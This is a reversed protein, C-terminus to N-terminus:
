VNVKLEFDCPSKVHVKAVAALSMTSSQESTGEMLTESEVNYEYSYTTGVEYKWKNDPNQEASCYLACSTPSSPALEQYGVIPGIPITVRLLNSIRFYLVLFVNYM